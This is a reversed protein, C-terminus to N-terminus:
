KEKKDNKKPEKASKRKRGCCLLRRVGMERGSPRPGLRMRATTLARWMISDGAVYRERGSYKRERGRLLLGRGGMKGGSARPLLRMRADTPARWMVSMGAVSTDEGPSCGDTGALKRDVCEHNRKRGLTRALSYGCAGPSRVTERGQVQAQLRMRLQKGLIKYTLVFESRTRAVYCSSTPSFFSVISPSIYSRPAV